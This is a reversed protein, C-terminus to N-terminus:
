SDGSHTRKLYSVIPLFYHTISVVPVLVLLFLLEDSHELVQARLCETRFCELLLELDNFTDANFDGLLTKADSSVTHSWSFTVVM